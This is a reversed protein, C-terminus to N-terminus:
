TVSIIPLFGLVFFYTCDYANQLNFYHTGITLMRHKPLNISLLKGLGNECHFLSYDHAALRDVDKEPAATHQLLMYDVLPNAKSPQVHLAVTVGADSPEISRRSLDWGSRQSDCYALLMLGPWLQSATVSSDRAYWPVVYREMMFEFNKICGSSFGEEVDASSDSGIGDPFIDKLSFRGNRRSFFSESNLVKWLVLLCMVATLGSRLYHQELTIVPVVTGLRKGFLRLAWLTLMDDHAAGSLRDMVERTVTKCSGPLHALAGRRFMAAVIANEDFTGSAYRRGQQVPAYFRLGPPDKYAFMNGGSMGTEAFVDDYIMKLTRSCNALIGEVSVPVDLSPDVSAQYAAIICTAVEIDSLVSDHAPYVTVQEVANLVGMLLEQSVALNEIQTLRYVRRWRPQNYLWRKLRYYWSGFSFTWAQSVGFLTDVLEGRFDNSFTIPPDVVTIWFRSVDCETSSVGHGGGEGGRESYETGDGASVASGRGDDRRGEDVQINPMPEVLLREAESIRDRFKKCEGRIEEGLADLDEGARRRLRADHTLDEARQRFRLVSEDRLRELAEASFVLVNGRHAEYAVICPLDHFTKLPNM